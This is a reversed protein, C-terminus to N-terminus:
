KYSDIIKLAKLASNEKDKIELMIDFDFSSLLRIINKLDISDLTRAHTGPRKGPEQSSYDTMPIGEKKKWTKSVASFIKILPENVANLKNHFFDFLVPIGTQRHIELCDKINYNRDDNEIVLHKKILPSLKYYRSIFRKISKQKDGYIGGIHIQIKSKVGLKMLELVQTHYYLEACSREYINKDPSNILTFQDPHMSIRMKHKKILSGIAEFDKKYHQQWPFTCVPHSAFPILDSSIRFFLLNYKINYLLIKKLCTLNNSVTEKFKQETYSKLRFTKSSSCEISRNICPYGIKM